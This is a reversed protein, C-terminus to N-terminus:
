IDGVLILNKRPSAHLAKRTKLMVLMGSARGYISAPKTLHTTNKPDPPVGNLCIFRDTSIRFHRRPCLLGITHWTLLTLSFSLSHSHTFM